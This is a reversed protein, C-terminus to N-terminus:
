NLNLAVSLEQRKRDIENLRLVISTIEREAKMTEASPRGPGHSGPATQVADELKELAERLKAEESGLQEIGARIEDKNM